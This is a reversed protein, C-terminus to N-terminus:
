LHQAGPPSYDCHLRGQTSWSHHHTHLTWSKNCLDHSDLLWHLEQIMSVTIPCRPVLEYKSNLHHRALFNAPHSGTSAQYQGPGINQPGACSGRWLGAITSRNISSIDLHTRFLRPCRIICDITPLRPTSHTHCTQWNPPPRVHAM